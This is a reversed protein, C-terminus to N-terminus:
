GCILSVGRPFGNFVSRRRFWPARPLRNGNFFGNPYVLRYDVVFSGQIPVTMEKLRYLDQNYYQLLWDSGQPKLPFRAMVVPKTKGIVHHVLLPVVKETMADVGWYTDLHNHLDNVWTYPIKQAFSHRDIIVRESSLIGVRQEAFTQALARNIRCAVAQSWANGQCAILWPVLVVMWLRTQRVPLLHGVALGIPILGISPLATHRLFVGSSLCVPVAFGIFIGACLWLFRACFTPFSARGFWRWLGWLFVADALLIGWIWPSEITFFRYFGYIFAKAMQRGAYLSPLAGFANSAFQNFQIFSSSGPNGPLLALLNLRWYLWLVVPVLFLRLYISKGRGFLLTYFCLIVPLLLGAEYGFAGLVYFALSGLLWRRQGRQIFLVFFLFSAVYLALMTNLYTFTLTHYLSVKNPLLLYFFSCLLALPRHATLAAFLGYIAWLFLTSSLFVLTVALWPREGAAMELFYHLVLVPRDPANRLEQLLFLTPQDALRFSILRALDDDSPAVREFPLFHALVNLVMLLLLVVGHTKLTKRLPSM